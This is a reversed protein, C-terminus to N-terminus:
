MESDDKGGEKIRELAEAFIIADQQHWFIGKEICDIEPCKTYKQGDWTTKWTAPNWHQIVLWSEPWCRKQADVCVFIEGQAPPDQHWDENELYVRM